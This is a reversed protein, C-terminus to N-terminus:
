IGFAGRGIHFQYKMAIAYVGIVLISFYWVTAALRAIFKNQKLLVLISPIIGTIIFIIIPSTVVQYTIMESWYEIFGPNIGDIRLAVLDIYNVVMSWVFLIVYSFILIQLLSRKSFSKLYKELM